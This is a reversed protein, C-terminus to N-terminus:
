DGEPKDPQGDARPPKGDENTWRDDPTTATGTVNRVDYPAYEGRGKRADEQERWSRKDGKTDVVHRSDHPEYEGGGSM